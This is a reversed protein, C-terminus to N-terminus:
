EGDQDIGMLALARRIVAAAVGSKAAAQDRWEEMQKADRRYKAVSRKDGNLCALRLGHTLDAYKNAVLGAYQQCQIALDYAERALSGTAPNPDMNDFAGFYAACSMAETAIAQTELAVRSSAILLEAAPSDPRDGEYDGLAALNLDHMIRPDGVRSGTASAETM